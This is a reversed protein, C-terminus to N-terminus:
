KNIETWPRNYIFDPWQYLRVTAQFQKPISNPSALLSRPMSLTLSPRLLPSLPLSYCMRGDADAREMLGVVGTWNQFVDDSVPAAALSAKEMAKTDNNLSQIDFAVITDIGL